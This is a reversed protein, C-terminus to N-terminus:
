TLRIEFFEINYPHKRSFKPKEIKSRINPWFQFDSIKLKALFEAQFHQNEDNEASNWFVRATYLKLFERNKPTKLFEISCPHKPKRTMQHAPICAKQMTKKVPWIEHVKLHM